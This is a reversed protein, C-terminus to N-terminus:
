VDLAPSQRYTRVYDLHGASLKWFISISLCQEPLLRSLPLLRIYNDFRQHDLCVGLAFLRNLPFLLHLTSRYFDGVSPAM